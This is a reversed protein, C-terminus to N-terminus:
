GEAIDDPTLRFSGHGVDPVPDTDCRSFVDAESDLASEGLEAM